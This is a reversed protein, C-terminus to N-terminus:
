VHARGIKDSLNAAYEEALYFPGAFGGYMSYKGYEPQYYGHWAGLDVFSNIYNTGLKDTEKRPAFYTFEKPEGQINLINKYNERSINKNNEKEKTACSFLLFSISGLALIKKM